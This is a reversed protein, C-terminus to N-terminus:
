HMSLIHFNVKGWYTVTFLCWNGKMPLRFFGAHAELHSPSTSAVKRYITVRVAGDAVDMKTTGNKIDPSIKFFLNHKPFFIFSSKDYMDTKSISIINKDTGGVVQYMDIGQVGHTERQSLPHM